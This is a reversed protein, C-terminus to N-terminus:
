VRGYIDVHRDTVEEVVWDGLGVSDLQARIEDRTFASLLSRYYEEQLIKSAEGAYRAVIERAKDETEPRFLDRLFVFGGQKVVRRLELWLLTPDSLHHLLSNSVVVDVSRDGIPLRKADGLLWCIGKNGGDHDAFRLMAESADIGILLSDRCREFVRKTIDGPGCGLDVIVLNAGRCPCLEFFRAVFRENVDSFDTLAYAEAELEDDMFEPEPVRQMMLVSWKTIIEMYDYWLSM